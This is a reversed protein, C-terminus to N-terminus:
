FLSLIMDCDGGTVKAGFYVIELDNGGRLIKFIDVM